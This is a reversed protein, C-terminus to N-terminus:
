KKNIWAYRYDKRFIKIEPHAKKYQKETYWRRDRIDYYVKGESNDKFTIPYVLRTREIDAGAPLFVLNCPIYPVFKFGKGLDEGYVPTPSEIRIVIKNINPGLGGPISKSEASVYWANNSKSLTFSFKMPPLKEKKSFEDWADSINSKIDDIMTGIDSFEPDVIAYKLIDIPIYEGPVKAFLRDGNKYSFTKTAM